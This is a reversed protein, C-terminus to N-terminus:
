VASVLDHFFNAGESALLVLGFYKSDPFWGGCAQDYQSARACWRSAEAVSQWGLVSDIGMTIAVCALRPSRNSVLWGRLDEIRFIVNAATIKEIRAPQALSPLKM